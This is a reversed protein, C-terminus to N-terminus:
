DSWLCNVERNGCLDTRGCVALKKIVVCTPGVVCSGERNCCVDTLCLCNVERNGCLDTRGCVALKEIVM